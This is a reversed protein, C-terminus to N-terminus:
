CGQLTMTLVGRRRIRVVGVDPAVGLYHGAWPSTSTMEVGLGGVVGAFPSRVHGDQDKDGQGRQSEDGRAAIGADLERRGRDLSSVCWRLLRRRWFDGIWGGCLALGAAVAPVGDGQPTM